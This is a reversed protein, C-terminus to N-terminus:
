RWNSCSKATRYLAAPAHRRYHQYANKRKPAPRRVLVSGPLILINKSDAGRAQPSLLDNADTEDAHRQSFIVALPWTFGARTNDNRDPIKPTAVFAHVQM